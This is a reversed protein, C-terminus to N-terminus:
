PSTSLIFNKGAAEAEKLAESFRAMDGKRDAGRFLFEGGYHFGMADFGYKACLIAGEFVRKGKTAAVSVFLGQRKPDEQWLDKEKLLRNRNWLAQCRDIFAKAQATVGYFYIPSALIVRDAAVIKEYLFPMEDDIICEGTQDCAGCNLCPAIKYDCIRIQEISAGAVNAGNAVAQLLVETNGGKRPSGQITLIKM